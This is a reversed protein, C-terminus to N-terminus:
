SGIDKAYLFDVGFTRPELKAIIPIKRKYHMAFLRKYLYRVLKEDYGAAIVAEPKARLDILQYLVPDMAAYSFGIEGEDTQGEWLDASPPKSIVSAPVGIYKAIRFIDTKYLDGLPNIASAIDGFLTAYGLAIESKNSTGLVIAGHALSYDFLTIMRMRAMINGLRAGRMKEPEVMIHAAAADVPASIDLIHYHIGTAEIVMLADDVSSKSSTRYPLLLATVNEAGLAHAALFACLASDLGGSLGLVAKTFGTRHVEQKIFFTLAEVALACNIERQIELM